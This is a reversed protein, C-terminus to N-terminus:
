ASRYEKGNYFLVTKIEEVNRDKEPSFLRSGVSDAPLYVKQASDSNVVLLYADANEDKSFSQWASEGRGIVRGSVTQPRIYAATVSAADKYFVQGDLTRYVARLSYSCVRSTGGGIFHSGSKGIDEFEGKSETPHLADEKLQYSIAKSDLTYGLRMGDGTYISSQTKTTFAPKKLDYTKATVTDSFLSKYTRGSVPSKMFARANISYLTNDKMGSSIVAFGVPMTFEASRRKGNASQYYVRVKGGASGAKIGARISRCGETVGTIVPKGVFAAEIEESTDSQESLASNGIQGGESRVRYRYIGEESLSETVRVVDSYLYKEGKEDVTDEDIRKIVSWDCTDVGAVKKREIVYGTALDDKEFSIRIDNKEGTDSNRVTLVPKELKETKVTKRFTNVSRGKYFFEVSVLYTQDAELGNFTLSSGIKQNERREVQRPDSDGWRSLTVDVRDTESKIDWTVKLSSLGTEVILPKNKERIAKKESKIQNPLFRNRWEECDANDEYILKKSEIIDDPGFEWKEGADTGGNESSLLAAELIKEYAEERWVSKAELSDSNKLNRSDISRVYVPTSYLTDGSTGSDDRNGDQPIDDRTDESDSSLIHVKATAVSTNQRFRNLDAGNKDTVSYYVTVTGIDGLGKFAEISFTHSSPDTYVTIYNRPIVGDEKDTATVVDEGLLSQRVGEANELESAYFSSDAATLVPFEDWVAYVRVVATDGDTNVDGNEYAQTYFVFTDYGAYVRRRYQEDALPNEDGHLKDGQCYVDSDKYTADSRLCWGQFSTQHKTSTKELQENDYKGIDILKQFYDQKHEDPGTNGPFVFGDRVHEKTYNSAGNTQGNGDFLLTFDTEWVAAFVHDDDFIRIIREDSYLESGYNKGARDRYGKQILGGTIDRSDYFISVRDSDHLVPATFFETPEKWYYSTNEPEKEKIHGNKVPFDGDYQASLLCSLVISGRKGNTDCGAHPQLSAAKDSHIVYGGIGSRLAAEHDNVRDFGIDFGYLLAETSRFKLTNNMWGRTDKTYDFTGDASYLKIVVRGAKRDDKATMIRGKTGSLDESSQQDMLIRIVSKKEEDGTLYISNSGDAGPEVVAGPQMYFIGDQWVGAKTCETIKVRKYYYVTGTNEIGYVAKSIDVSSGGDDMDNGIYAKGGSTNKIGTQGARIDANVVTLIGSNRIGTGCKGSNDAIILKRAQLSAQGSGSITIGTGQASSFITTKGNGDTYVVAESKDIGSIFEESGVGVHIGNLRGDIILDARGPELYVSGYYARIGTDGATIRGGDLILELGNGYDFIDSLAYSAAASSEASKAQEESGGRFVIAQRIVDVARQCVVGYDDGYIDTDEPLNMSEYTRIGAAVPRRESPLTKWAASHNARIKVDSGFVLLGRNQIVCASSTANGSFAGTYAYLSSSEVKVRGKDAPIADSFTERDFGGGRMASYVAEYSADDFNDIAKEGSLTCGVIELSGVSRFDCADGCDGRLESNRVSVNSNGMQFLGNYRGYILSKRISVATPASSSNNVRLGTGIYDWSLEFRFLGADGMGYLTSDSIDASGNEVTVATNRALVAVHNLTLKGSTDRGAANYFSDFGVEIGSCAVRGSSNSTIFENGYSPTETLEGDFALLTLNNLTLSAGNGVHFIYGALSRKITRDNGSITVNKIDQDCLWRHQRVGDIDAVVGIDLDTDLTLYSYKHIKERLDYQNRIHTDKPTLITDSLTGRVTRERRYTKEDIVVNYYYTQTYRVQVTYEEYDLLNSLTVTASNGSEYLSVVVDDSDNRGKGTTSVSPTWFSVSDTYGYDSLKSLSFYLRESFRGSGTQAPAKVAKSRFRFDSSYGKSDSATNLIDKVQKKTQEKVETRSVAARAEVPSVTGQPVAMVAALSFAAITRFIQRKNM